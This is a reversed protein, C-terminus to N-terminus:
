PSPSAAPQPAHVPPGVLSAVSALVQGSPDAVEIAISDVAHQETPEITVTLTLGDISSTATGTSAGADYAFAAQVDSLANAAVQAALARTQAVADARSLMVLAPYIGFLLVMAFLATAVITEVLTFGQAARRSVPRIGLDIPRYRRPLVVAHPVAPSSVRVFLWSVQVLAARNYFHPGVRYTMGNFHLAGDPGVFLSIGAHRWGRPDRALHRCLSVIWERRQTWAIAGLGLVLLAALVLLGTAIPKPFVMGRVAGPTPHLSSASIDAGNGAGLRTTDDGAPSPSVVYDSITFSGDPVGGRLRMIRGPLDLSGVHTWADLVYATQGRAADDVFGTVRDGAPNLYVSFGSRSSWAGASEVRTLPETALAGVAFAWANALADAALADDISIADDGYSVTAGDGTTHFSYAREQEDLRFGSGSVILAGAIADAAPRNDRTAVYDIRGRFSRVDALAPPLPEASAPGPAIAVICIGCLASVLASLNRAGASSAEL